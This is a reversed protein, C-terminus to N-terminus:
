VGWGLTVGLRAPVRLAWRIDMSEQLSAPPTQSSTVETLDQQVRMAMVSQSIMCPEHDRKVLKLGLTECLRVPLRIGVIHEVSECSSLPACKNRSEVLMQPTILGRLVDM